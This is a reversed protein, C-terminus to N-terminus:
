GVQDGLCHWGSRRRRAFLELYPGGFLEEVLEYFREPKESHRGVKAEFVSRVSASRREPRGRTAIMCTEHSARVTRGMGFHLKGHKTRKVWVMETKPEFGWSDAVNVAERAFAAPRWLFLVADPEVLHSFEGHFAAISGASMTRYHKRAGRADGPLNDGFAWPPDAVVVRCTTEM